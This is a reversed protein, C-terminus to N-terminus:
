KINSLPYVDSLKDDREFPYVDDIESFVIKFQKRAEAVHLKAFEIMKENFSMPLGNVDKKNYFEEATPIM